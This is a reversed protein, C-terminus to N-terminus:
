GTGVLILLLMAMTVALLSFLVLRDMVAQAANPAPQKSDFM